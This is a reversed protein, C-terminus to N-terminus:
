NALSVDAKYIKTHNHMDLAAIYFPHKKQSYHQKESFFLVGFTTKNDAKEVVM